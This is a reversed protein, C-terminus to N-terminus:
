KPARAPRRGVIALAIGGLIMVASLALRVTIAEALFVVGGMAALIPVSLQVVAADTATLDTLAAYWVVYGVGSALSGSVVALLVGTVELHLGPLTVLSLMAALVVARTFSGTTQALPDDQNRGILSYVGWSVGALAM